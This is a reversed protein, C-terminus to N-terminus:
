PLRRELEALEYQRTQARTVTILISALEAVLGLLAVVFVVIRWGDADGLGGAPVMMAAVGVAFAVIGCNYTRRSWAAWEEFSALAACQETELLEVRNPAEPLWEELESPKVVYQRAAFTFQVCAIFAITAAVLALLAVGAWGFNPCKGQTGRLGYKYTGM